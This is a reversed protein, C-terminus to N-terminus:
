TALVQVMALAEEMREDVTLTSGSVDQPTLVQDAGTGVFVVKAGKATRLIGQLARVVRDRVDGTWEALNLFCLHLARDCPVRRVNVSRNFAEEGDLTRVFCVYDQDRPAPLQVDATHAIKAGRYVADDPDREVFDDGDMPYADDDVDPVTSWSQLPNHVSDISDSSGVGLGVFSDTISVGSPQHLSSDVSATGLSPIPGYRGDVSTHDSHSSPPLDV